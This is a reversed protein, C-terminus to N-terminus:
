QNVYRMASLGRYAPGIIERAQAYHESGCRVYEHNHIADAPDGTNYGDLLEELTVVQDNIRARRIIRRNLLEVVWRIAVADDDLEHPMGRYGLEFATPYMIQWNSFSKASDEGYVKWQRDSYYRGGPCYAKELRPVPNDKNYRENLFLAYLVWVGEPEGEHLELRHGWGRCLDQIAQLEEETTRIV